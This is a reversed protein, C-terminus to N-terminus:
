LSYKSSVHRPINKKSYPIMGFQKKKFNFTHYKQYTLHNFSSFSKLKEMQKEFCAKQERVDTHLKELAFHPYPCLSHKYRLSTNKDLSSALFKVLKRKEFYQFMDTEARSELEDLCCHYHTEKTEYYKYPMEHVTCCGKRGSEFGYAKVNKLQFALVLTIAMAGGSVKFMDQSKGLLCSQYQKVLRTPWYSLQILLRNHISCSSRLDSFRKESDTKDIYFCFEHKCLKSVDGLTHLDECGKCSFLKSKKDKSYKNLIMNIVGPGILRHTTKVGVHRRFSKVPAHNVRIVCDHQDIDYGYNHLLLFSSSGVIATSTCNGM